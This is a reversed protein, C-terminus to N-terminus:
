VTVRTWNSSEFDKLKMTFIKKDATPTIWGLKISGNYDLGLFIIQTTKSDPAGKPILIDGVKFSVTEKKM